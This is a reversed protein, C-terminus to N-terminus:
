RIQRFKKDYIKSYSVSKVIIILCCCQILRTKCCSLLVDLLIEEYNFFEDTNFVDFSEYHFLHLQYNKEVKGRSYKMLTYEDLILRNNIETVYEIEGRSEAEDM